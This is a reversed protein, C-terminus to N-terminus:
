RIPRAPENMDPLPEVMAANLDAETLYYVLITNNIEFDPERQRLYSTLRANRAHGYSAFQQFWFPEGAQAVLDQRGKQDNGVYLDINRTLDRYTSEYKKTWHGPFDTYLNQLMTASICYAGPQLPEPLELPEWDFYCVLHKANIGYYEPSATGFYSLYTKSTTSDDLGVETMWKKLAPLDQGWDLSSDVLHRYAHQPGGAIRNFYTWYNPWSWVSEGAFSSLCVIVILTTIPWRRAAFWSQMRTVLDPLQENPGSTASGNDKRSAVWFWSGGAFVLMVPYTPLIHRHGINLHSTIAFGWYVLFLTWLPAWRYLSRGITARRTQWNSETRLSRIVWAAVLALLVFLPLPTKVLVCYPFFYWWGTSGVNGNIFAARAKGFHWTTAFGYLYAEPLFHLARAKEVFNEVFDHEGLVTDWSALPQDVVAQEGKENLQVTKTAFMDYRFNYFGWIVSWVVVAHICVIAVHTLLRAMRSEIRRSRMRGGVTIPRRSALQVAILVLTMPIILFAGFKAVFLGSMTLASALLRRWTVLQMVRWVALMTAFFFLAAAMDSTIVAGNALMTPCLVFLVLSIFAPGIGMLRRACGFVLAGLAVGFLANMARGCLLMADCDNGSNYFFEYGVNGMSSKQWMDDMKPPNTPRFLLPIADWRQPLNGNEPQIRFDGRLWYTYGGTLHFLEDFMTSKGITASVATVFYWVLLAIVAPYVVGPSFADAPKEGGTVESATSNRTAGVM